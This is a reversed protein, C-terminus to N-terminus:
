EFVGGGKSFPNVKKIVPRQPAVAPQRNKLADLRRQEARKSNEGLVEDVTTTAVKSEMRDVPNRLTLFMRHGMSIAYVLIQAEAPTVEVTVTQYNRSSSLNIAKRGRGLPDDEYGQPIYNQVFEGVALVHVNELITKLESTRGEDTKYTIGAIIDVRNGPKLLKTVGTVEDVPISLARKTVSVQDALGAESGIPALLVKTKLIQEGKKIPGMAFQGIFVDYASNRAQNEDMQGDLIVSGPQQFNKFIIKTALMDETIQETERIDVKAVVVAVEEGLSEKIATEQQSVYFYVLGMGVLAIILSVMFAKSQNM